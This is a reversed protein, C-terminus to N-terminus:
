FECLCLVVGARCVRYWVVEGGRWKGSGELVVWVVAVWVCVCTWCEEQEWLILLDLGFIIVGEGREM